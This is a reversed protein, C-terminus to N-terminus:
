HWLVGGMSCRLGVTPEYCVVRAPTGQAAGWAVFWAILEPTGGAGAARMRELTCEAFARETDGAELLGLFWRDFAEDIEFYRPGGPDHSLGGTAMIAVRLDAPLDERIAQAILAGKDFCAQPTPVPPVLCNMHVPVFPLDFQPTLVKLPVCFNDDMLLDGRFALPLGRRDLAQVLAEAVDPRGPVRFPAIALWDQFWPAPGEWQAATGICMDPLNDFPLNLLHDNGFGIVVDPRAAHLARGLEAYGVQLRERQGAEAKDFWGTMGPAHALAMCSVLQAM